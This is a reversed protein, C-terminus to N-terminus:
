KQVTKLTFLTIEPRALFRYPLRTTGLGRNVYVATDHLTYMGDTYTKGYPPTILPGFFPLQVQGGHTHGSLQLNVPYGGIKLAADPEHVILISFADESLRSLTGEYDPKGLMVDDLFALEIRSGDTLQVQRCGNRLVQFDAAEMLAKYTNTGYGGHDHNGYVCLKGFPAELNQLVALAQQHDNFLHPKDILDGTFILLDPKLQNIKEAAKNLDGSTFVDSLHTDSFQVIKFNDFGRPILRNTITHRTIEIMRPEIYRAYGYGGCATALTAGLIGFGRKLFTRRTMKEM